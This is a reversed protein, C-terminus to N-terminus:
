LRSEQGFGEPSLLLLSALRGRANRLLHPVLALFDNMHINERRKGLNSYYEM